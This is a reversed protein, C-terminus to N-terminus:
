FFYRYFQWNMKPVIESEKTSEFETAHENIIKEIIAETDNSYEVKVPRAFKLWNYMARYNILDLKPLVTVGMRKLSEANCQQEFQNEMPIVMLKKNLFMAESPLEFGAGTLVGKCSALENLFVENDVPVPQPPLTTETPKLKVTTTSAPDPMVFNSTIVPLEFNVNIPPLVSFVGTLDNASVAAAVSFTVDLAGEADLLLAEMGAQAYTDGLRHPDQNAIVDARTGVPLSIITGGVGTTNLVFATLSTVDNVDNVTALLAAPTSPIKLAGSSDVNQGGSAGLLSKAGFVVGVPLLCAAGLGCLAAAM